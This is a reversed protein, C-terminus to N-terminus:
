MSSASPCVFPSIRRVASRAQAQVDVHTHETDKLSQVPIVRSNGSPLYRADKDGCLAVYTTALTGQIRTILIYMDIALRWVASIRQTFESGWQTRGDVRLQAVGQPFTPVSLLMHRM